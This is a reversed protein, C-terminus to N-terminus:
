CQLAFTFSRFTTSAKTIVTHEGASKTCFKGANMMDEGNVYHRLGSRPINRQEQNELPLQFPQTLVVKRPLGTM